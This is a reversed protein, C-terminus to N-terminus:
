CPAASLWCEASRKKYLLWAFIAMAIAAAPLLGGISSAAEMTDSWPGVRVDQIARTLFLDGAFHDRMAALVSFLAAVPLAMAVFMTTMNPAPPRLGSITRM